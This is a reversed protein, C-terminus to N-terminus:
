HPVPPHAACRVRRDRRGQEQESALVLLAALCATKQDTTWPPGLSRGVAAIEQRLQITRSGFVAEARGDLEREPIGAVQIGLRESANGFARRFFEGEAAHILSHSALINSLFPLPRGSALLIACGMALYERRRLERVIDNLAELALRESATACHALYREAEPLAYKQAFHYPQNAGALNLDAVAIRRRDIVEISGPNGSVVVLAGWGSHARVGIAAAKM